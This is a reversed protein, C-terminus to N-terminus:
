ADSLAICNLEHCKFEVPHVVQHAHTPLHFDFERSLVFPVQYADCRRSYQLYQLYDADDYNM